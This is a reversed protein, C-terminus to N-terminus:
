DKIQCCFYNYNECPYDKLDGQGLVQCNYKLLEPFDKECTKPYKQCLCQKMEEETVKGEIIKAKFIKGDPDIAGMVRFCNRFLWGPEIETSLTICYHMRWAMKEFEIIAQLSEELEGNIFKETFDKLNLEEWEKGFQGELEKMWEEELQKKLHDIITKETEGDGVMKKIEEWKERLKIFGEIEIKKQAIQKKLDNIKGIATNIEGSPCPDGTCNCPTCSCISDCCTCGCIPGCNTSTCQSVLQHLEDIAEIMQEKLQSFEGLKQAFKKAMVLIKDIIEGFPIPISCSTIVEFKGAKFEEDKGIYEERFEEEAEKLRKQIEEKTLEKPTGKKPDTEVFKLEPIHGARTGGVPCYFDAFSNLLLKDVDDFYSFKKLKWEHLRYYNSLSIYEDRSIVNSLFCEDKMIKLAKILKDIESELDLREKDLKWRKEQLKEINKRNKEKENDIEERVECCPDSTCKGKCGVNICGEETMVCVGSCEPRICNPGRSRGCPNECTCEKTLKELKNSTEKSESTTKASDQVLEKIRELRNPNFIGFEKEEIGKIRTEVPLEGYLGTTTQLLRFEEYEEKKEEKTPPVEIGVLTPSITKLILWSSLLILLGLFSALIQDRAGKVKAPNGASTLYLFGGLVLSLFAVIGGIQILREYLRKVSQALIIEKKEQAFAGELLFFNVLFLFLFFILYIKKNKVM